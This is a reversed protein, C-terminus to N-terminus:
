GRWQSLVDLLEPLERIRADPTIAPDPETRHAVEILIGKMGAAQAGAVDAHLRDGVYVAREPAVGIADLAARFIAPHPKAVGVESSYVEVDFFPALGRRAHAQQMYRAPQVTNSIAGLKLGRDRLVTLTALAGAGPQSAM